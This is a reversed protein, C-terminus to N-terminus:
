NSLLPMTYRGIGGTVGGALSSGGGGNDGDSLGGSDGGALFRGVSLLVPFRNLTSM